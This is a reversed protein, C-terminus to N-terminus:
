IDYDSFNEKDSQCVHTLDSQQKSVQQKPREHCFTEFAFTRDATAKSANM